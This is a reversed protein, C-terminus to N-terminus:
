AGGARGRAPAHAAAGAQEDSKEWMWCSTSRRARASRCARARRPGASRGCRSRISASRCAGGSRPRSSAPTRASSMWRAPWGRTKPQLVVEVSARGGRELVVTQEVPDRDGLAIKLHHRGPRVRPATPTTEDLVRGDLEVTAGAPQSSVLIAGMRRAGKTLLFG